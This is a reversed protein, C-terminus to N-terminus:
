QTPESEGNFAPPLRVLQPAASADAMCRFLVEVARTGVHSEFSVELVRPASVALQPEQSLVGVLPRHKHGYLRALATPFCGHQIVVGDWDQIHEDVFPKIKVAYEERAAWCLWDERYDLGLAGLTRKYSDHIELAPPFHKAGNILGIRRAGMEHLRRVVLDTAATWDHAIRWSKSTLDYAGLVVFPIGMANLFDVWADTMHGTVLVGAAGRLTKVVAQDPAKWAMILDVDHRRQTADARVVEILREYHATTGSVLLFAIRGLRPPREAFSTARVFTGRGHVRHVVGSSQLDSLARRVTIQSVGLEACLEQETPLRAGSALQKRAIFDLLGQRAQLYKPIPQSTDM